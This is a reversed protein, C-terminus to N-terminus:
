RDERPRVAVEISWRSALWMMAIGISAHPDGQATPWSVIWLSLDNGFQLVCGFSIDIIM